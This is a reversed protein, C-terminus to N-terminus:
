GKRRWLWSSGLDFRPTCRMGSRSTARIVSPTINWGGRGGFMVATQDRIVTGKVVPAGFYGRGGVSQRPAQNQAAACAAFLVFVIVFLLQRM